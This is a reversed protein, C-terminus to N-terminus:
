LINLFSLFFTFNSIVSICNTFFVMWTIEFCKLGEKEFILFFTPNKQILQMYPHNVLDYKKIIQPM